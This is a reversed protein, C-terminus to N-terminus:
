TAQGSRNKCPESRLANQSKSPTKKGRATKSWFPSSLLKNPALALRDCGFWGSSQLWQSPFLHLIQGAEGHLADIRLAFSTTMPEAGIGGSREADVTM